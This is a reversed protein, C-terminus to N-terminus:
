GRAAGPAPPWPRRTSCSARSCGAASRPPTAWPSSAPPQAPLSHPTRTACPAPRTPRPTLPVPSMPDPGRGMTPLNSPLNSPLPCTPCGAAGLRVAAPPPAPLPRACSCALPRPRAVGHCAACSPAWAAPGGCGRCGAGQAALDQGFGGPLQVDASILAVEGSRVLFIRHNPQGTAASVVDGAAYKVEVSSQLVGKVQPARLPTPRPAAPVATDAALLSPPSPPGPPAPSVADHATDAPSVRRIVAAAATCCTTSPRASPPWTHSCAGDMCCRCPGPRVRAAVSSLVAGKWICQM